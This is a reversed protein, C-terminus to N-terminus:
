AYDLIKNKLKGRKIVENRILANINPQTVNYYKACETLSDFVIDETREIVKKSRTKKGIRSLAIKRKTSSSHSKGFMPNNVGSKDYSLHKGVNDMNRYAMSKKLAAIRKKHDVHDWGGCANNKLNYFKNDKAADIKKLISDEVNLYDNGIYLIYRKFNNPNKNYARTFYVGSGIYDDDVKGKHSGIYMMDTLINIWLYVFGM